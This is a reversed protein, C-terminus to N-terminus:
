SPATVRFPNVFKEAPLTEGLRRGTVLLLVLVAFFGIGLLSPWVLMGYDGKSPMLERM